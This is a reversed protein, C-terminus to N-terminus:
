DPATGSYILDYIVYSLNLYEIKQSKYSYRLDYSKGTLKKSLFYGLFNILLFISLLMLFPGRMSLDLNYSLNPKM